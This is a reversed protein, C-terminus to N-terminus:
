AANVDAVLQSLLKEYDYRVLDTFVMPFEYIRDRVAFVDTERINIKMPKTPSSPLRIKGLMWLVVHDMIGTAMFSGTEIYPAFYLASRIRAIDQDGPSEQFIELAEDREFGELDTPDVPLVSGNLYVIGSAQIFRYSFLGDFDVTVEM